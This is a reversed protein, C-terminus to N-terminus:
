LKWAMGDGPLHAELKRWQPTQVPTSRRTVLIIAFAAITAPPPTKVDTKFCLRQWNLQLM